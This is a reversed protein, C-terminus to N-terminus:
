LNTEEFLFSPSEFQSPLLPPLFPHENTIASVDNQPLPLYALDATIQPLNHYGVVQKTYLMSQIHPLMAIYDSQTLSGLEQGAILAYAAGEIRLRLDYNLQDLEKGCKSLAVYFKLIEDNEKQNKLFSWMKSYYKNMLKQDLSQGTLKSADFLKGMDMKFLMFSNTERRRPNGNRDIRSMMRWNWVTQIVIGEDTESTDM